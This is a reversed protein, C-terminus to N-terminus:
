IRFLIPVRFFDWFLFYAFLLFHFVPIRAPPFIFFPFLGSCLFVTGGEEIAVEMTMITAAMPVDDIAAPYPQNMAEYEPLTWSTATRIAARALYWDRPTPWLEYDDGIEVMLPDYELVFLHVREAYSWRIYMDLNGTIKKYIRAIYWYPKTQLHELLGEYNMITTGANRTMAGVPFKFEGIPLNSVYSEM